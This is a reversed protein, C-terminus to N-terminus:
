KKMSTLKESSERLVHYILNATGAIQIAVMGWQEVEDAGHKMIFAEYIGAVVVAVIGLLPLVPLHFRKALHILGTVGASLLVLTVDNFTTIDM